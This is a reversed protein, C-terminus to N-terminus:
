LFFLIKKYNHPKKYNDTKKNYNKNNDHIKKTM